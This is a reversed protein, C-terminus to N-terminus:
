LSSTVKTEGEWSSDSFKKWKRHKNVYIDENFKNPTPTVTDSESTHDAGKPFKNM